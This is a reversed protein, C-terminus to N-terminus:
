ESGTSARRREMQLLESLSKLERQLDEVQSRLEEDAPRRQAARESEARILHRAWDSVSHAGSQLSARFLQQYEEESVRFSVIRSRRKFVAARRM